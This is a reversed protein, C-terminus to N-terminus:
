SWQPFRTRSTEPGAREVQADRNIIRSAVSDQPGYRAQVRLDVQRTLTERPEETLSGVHIQHDAGAALLAQAIEQQPFAGIRLQNERRAHPGLECALVQFRCQQFKGTAM